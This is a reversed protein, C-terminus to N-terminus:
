FKGINYYVFEGQGYDEVSLGCSTEIDDGAKDRNIAWFSLLAMNKELVYDRLLKFDNEYWIETPIDNVGIMAIAGIKYFYENNVPPTTLITKLYNNVNEIAEKSYEFMKPTTKDNAVYDQSYDMLMLNYSSVDVGEDQALQVLHKVDDDWGSPMVPLTLSITLDPYITQLKHLVTFRKINTDEENLMDGEIDFDLHKIHYTDIVQQYAHLLGDEDCVYALSSQQAGAGGFSIMGKVVIDKYDELSAELDWDWHPECKGNSVVFSYAFEGDINVDSGVPYFPLYQPTITTTQTHPTYLEQELSTKINTIDTPTNAQLLNNIQTNYDKMFTELEDTNDIDLTALKNAIDDLSINNLLAQEIVFKLALAKKITNLNDNTIKNYDIDLFPSLKQKLVEKTNDKATAILTTLPSIIHPNQSFATYNVETNTQTNIGNTVKIMDIDCSNPITINYAGMDDSLTTYSSTDKCIVEVNAGKRYSALVEGNITTDSTLNDASTNDSSSGGGGCGILGLITAISILQIRM